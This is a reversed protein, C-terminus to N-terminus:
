QCMSASFRGINTRLGLETREFHKKHWSNTRTSCDVGRDDFEVVLAGPALAVSMLGYQVKSEAGSSSEEVRNLTMSRRRGDLHIGAFDGDLKDLDDFDKATSTHNWLSSPPARM